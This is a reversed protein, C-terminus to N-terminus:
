GKKGGGHKKAKKVKFTAKAPTPDVNGGGDIARVLLKHKGKKLKLKLPSKCSKYKKKDLKCQFSSGSESSVFKVKVKARKQGQKIKLKKKPKPKFKTNPAVNDGCLRETPLAANPRPTPTATIGFDASSVNTDDPADLATTCGRLITRTLSQIEPVSPAPTGAASPLSGTFNGWSICDIAAYCVAGGANDLNAPGYTFDPTVGFGAAADDSGLLITRQSGSRAVDAPITFTGFETGNEGYFHIQRGSVDGQGDALLQLEIFEPNSQYTAIGPAVERIKIEKSAASAPGALLLAATTGLLAVLLHKRL